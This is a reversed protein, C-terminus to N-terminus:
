ARAHGEIRQVEAADLRDRQPQAVATDEHAAAVIGVALGHCRELPEGDADYGGGVFIRGDSLGLAVPEIRGFNLPDLAVSSSRTAPDVVELTALATGFAGRGGVLLTEGSPLVLAAHRTRPERLELLELEFRRAVPDYIEASSRLVREEVAVDHIPNEGGAVLLEDGFESVSAFARPEGLVHRASADVAYATGSRVDFTLAGVVASSTPDNGGAALVLGTAPAYGVAQGGGRSPFGAQAAQDFVICGDSEPWLLLEVDGSAFAEGYGIFTESSGETAAAIARTGLPFRLERGAGDLPLLEATSNTTPFPGLAELELRASEPAPCGPLSYVRITRTM